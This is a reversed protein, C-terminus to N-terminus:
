RGCSRARARGLSGRHARARRVQAEMHKPAVTKAYLTAGLFAALGLVSALRISKPPLPVPPDVFVRKIIPDM